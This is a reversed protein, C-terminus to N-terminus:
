VGFLVTGLVAVRLATLTPGFALVAALWGLGVALEVAPYIVSIPLQCGRCRARMALWSVLPVNEYWRIERECKPCRSPPSVVSLSAPWRAICVNLFSGVCAGVLLALLAASMPTAVGPTALTPAAAPPVLQLLLAPLAPIM